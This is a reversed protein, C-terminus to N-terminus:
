SYLWVGVSRQLIATRGHLWQVIEEVLTAHM